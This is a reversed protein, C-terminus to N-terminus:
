GSEVIKSFYELHSRLAIDKSFHTRYYEVANRSLKSRLEPSHVLMEIKKIFEIPDDEILVNEYNSLGPFEETIVSTTIIPKGRSLAEAMKTQFGSGSILPFIVASSRDVLKYFEITELYGHLLINRPLNRGKFRKPIFGTISFKIEPLKHAINIIFEAALVSAFSKGSFFVVSDKETKETLTANFNLIPPIYSVNINKIRQLVGKDHESIVIVNKSALSSIEFWLVIKRMIKHLLRFIYFSVPTPRLIYEMWVKSNELYHPLGGVIAFEVIKLNFRKKLFKPIKNNDFSIRIVIDFEEFGPKILFNPSPGKARNLFIIDYIGIYSFLDVLFTPLKDLFKSNINESKRGTHIITLNGYRKTMSIGAGWTLVTVENCKSLLNATTFIHEDAGPKQMLINSHYLILIKMPVIKIITNKTILTKM